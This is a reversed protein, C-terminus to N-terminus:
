RATPLWNTSSDAAEAANGLLLLLSVIQNEPSALSSRRCRGRSAGAARREGKAAIVRDQLLSDIDGAGIRRRQDFHGGARHIREVLLRKIQTIPPHEIDVRSLDALQSHQGIRRRRSLRRGLGCGLIFQNQLALFLGQCKAGLHREQGASLGAWWEASLLVPLALRQSGVLSWTAAVCGASGGEFQVSLPLPSASSERADIGQQLFQVRKPRIFVDGRRQRRGLRCRFIHDVDGAYGRRPSILAFVFEAEAILSLLWQNAFVVAEGKLQRM